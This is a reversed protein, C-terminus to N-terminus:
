VPAPATWEGNYPNYTCFPNKANLNGTKQEASERCDFCAYRLECDKCEEVKDKTFIRFTEAKERITKITGNELNGIIHRSFICPRANLDSTVAIRRGWCPHFHQNFQYASENIGPFDDTITYKEACQNHNKELYTIEIDPDIDQVRDQIIDQLATEQKDKGFYHIEGINFSGLRRYAWQIDVGDDIELIIATNKLFNVSFDICPIWTKKDVEILLQDRNLVDILESISELEQNELTIIHQIKVQFINEKLLDIIATNVPGKQLRAM